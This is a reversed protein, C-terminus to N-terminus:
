PQSTSHEVYYCFKLLMGQVIETVNKPKVFKIVNINKSVNGNGKIEFEHAADNFFDGERLWSSGNTVDSCWGVNLVASITYIDSQTRPKLIVEYAIQNASTIKFNTMVVRLLQPLDCSEQGLRCQTTDRTTLILCSAKGVNSPKEPLVVNGSIVM